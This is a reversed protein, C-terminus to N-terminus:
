DDYNSDQAILPGSVASPALQPHEWKKEAWVTQVLIYFDHSNSASRSRSLYPDLNPNIRTTRREREPISMLAVTPFLLGVGMDNTSCFGSLMRTLDPGRDPAIRIATQNNRPRNSPGSLPRAVALPRDSGALYPRAFLSTEVYQGRGHSRDLDQGLVKSM